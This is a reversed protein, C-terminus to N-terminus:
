RLELYSGHVRLILWTSLCWIRHLFSAFCENENLTGFTLTPALIWVFSFIFPFNHPLRTGRIYLLANVCMVHAHRSLYVCNQPLSRHCYMLMVLVIAIAIVISNAFVSCLSQTSTQKNTQKNAQESGFTLRVLNVYLSSYKILKCKEKDLERGSQTCQVCMRNCVCARVCSCKKRECKKPQLIHHVLLNTQNRACAM